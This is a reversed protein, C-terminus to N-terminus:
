SDTIAGSLNGAVAVAVAVAIAATAAAASRSSTDPVNRSTRQKEGDALLVAMLSLRLPNYAVEHRLQPFPRFRGGRTKPLRYRIQAPALSGRLEDPARSTPIRIQEAERELM